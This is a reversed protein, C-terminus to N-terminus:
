GLYRQLISLAHNLDHMRAADGGRDPHHQMALRRYQAKVENLTVPEQLQLTALAQAKEDEIGLQQWFGSLLQEVAEADTGHLQELDLYYERLPEVENLASEGQVYPRIRILLPSIELEGLQEERLLDRLSYLTHFLLFHSQFLGLSDGPPLSPMLEHPPLRLYHLLAQESLGDPYEDLLQRCAAELRSIKAALGSM